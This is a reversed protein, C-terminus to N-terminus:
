SRTLLYLRQLRGDGPSARANQCFSSLNTRRLLPSTAGVLLRRTWVTERRLNQHSSLGLSLFIQQTEQSVSVSDLVSPPSPNRSMWAKLMARSSFIAHLSIVSGFQRNELIMRPLYQWLVEKRFIVAEDAIECPQLPM